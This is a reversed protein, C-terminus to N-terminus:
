LNFEIGGNELNRIVLKDGDGTIEKLMSVNIRASDNPEIILERFKKRNAKVFPKRSIVKPAVIVTISENEEVLPPINDIDSM